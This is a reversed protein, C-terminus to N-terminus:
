KPGKSHARIVRASVARSTALIREAYRAPGPAVELRRITSSNHSCFGGSQDSTDARHISNTMNRNTSITSQRQLALAHGRRHLHSKCSTPHVYIKDNRDDQALSVLRLIKAGSISCIYGCIRLDKSKAASREPHCMQKMESKSRCKRHRNHTPSPM